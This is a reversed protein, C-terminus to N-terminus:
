WTLKKNNQVGEMYQKNMTCYKFLEPQKSVNTSKNIKVINNNNKTALNPLQTCQLDKYNKNVKKPSKRM